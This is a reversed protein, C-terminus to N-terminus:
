TLPVYTNSDSSESVDPAFSYWRGASLRGGVTTMDCSHVFLIMLPEKKGTQKKGEKELPSSQLTQIIKDSMDMWPPSRSHWAMRWSCSEFLGSLVPHMELWSLSPSPFFYGPLLYCRRLAPTHGVSVDRRRCPLHARYTHSAVLVSLSSTQPSRVCTALACSVQGVLITVHVRLSTLTQKVGVAVLSIAEQFIRGIMYEIAHMMSRVLKM